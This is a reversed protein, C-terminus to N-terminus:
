AALTSVRLPALDPDEAAFRRWWACCSECLLDRAGNPGLWDYAAPRERPQGDEYIRACVTCLTM